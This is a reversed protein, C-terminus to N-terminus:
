PFNSTNLDTTTGMNNKGKVSVSVGPLPGASDVVLGSVNFARAPVADQASAAFACVVCCCILLLRITARFKAIM